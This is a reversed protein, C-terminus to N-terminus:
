KSCFVLTGANYIEFWDDNYNGGRAPNPLTVTNGAMWENLSLQVGPEDVRNTAGPTAYYFRRRKAPAGDPYAGYSRDASMHDYNLYDM